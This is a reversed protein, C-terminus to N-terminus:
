GQVADAKPKRMKKPVRKFSFEKGELDEVWSPIQISPYIVPLALSRRDTNDGESLVKQYVSQFVLAIFKEERRSVDRSNWFGPLKALEDDPRLVSQDIGLAGELARSYGGGVMKMQVFHNGEIGIEGVTNPYLQM